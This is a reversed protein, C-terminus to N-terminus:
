RLVSVRLGGHTGLVSVRTSGQNRRVVLDASGDGVRVNRLEVERLWYPLRPRRLILRGRAADGELGLIAQLMMLMSGAAWAQPSCAVPYRVPYDHGTRQAGSYLEPLRYYAFTRCVDYLATAVENTETDFGYRKMGLAAIANDHPWVSGVHYGLPNYRPNTSSLTRIGWGSFMDNGLLREVVRPAREADAIGTWLAHGVNSSVSAAPRKSGDLALAYFGLDDSWFAQNFRLKLARAEARLEAARGPQGLADYIGAMGLKGAYVYGQVEVLSIPPQALSGDAHVIADWSDKWGQNAIGKQSHKNYEVFGDGDQDGHHAIWRLAAEAAPLLSQVLERDGTWQFYQGLLMVFLPTADVTGYYPTMPIEGLRAMEGVRFEHLIKGPEEDREPDAQSGQHAALVNLVGRAVEPAYPLAQMGVILSDRGFLAAFWPTGAAIYPHEGIQSRLM